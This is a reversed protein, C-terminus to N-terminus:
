AAPLSERTLEDIWEQHRSRYPERAPPEGTLRHLTEPKPQANRTIEITFIVNEPGFGDCRLSQLGALLLTFAEGKATQARLQLSRKNLLGLSM